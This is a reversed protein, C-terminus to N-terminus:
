LCIANTQALSWYFMPTLVRPPYMYCPGAGEWYSQFATHGWGEHGWILWDTGCNAVGGGGRGGTNPVTKGWHLLYKLQKKPIQKNRYFIENFVFVFFQILSNMIPSTEIKM